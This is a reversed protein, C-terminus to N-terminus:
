EGELGVTKLAKKQRKALAALDFGDILEHFLRHWNVEANIRMFVSGLGIAARDVLVFEKPPAIGGLRRLERHVEAAVAAGYYANDTDQIRRM